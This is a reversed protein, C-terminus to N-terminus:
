RGAGSDLEEIEEVIVNRLLYGIGRRTELIDYGIKRKLKYIQNYIARNTAGEDSRHEWVLQYLRECSFISGPRRSLALMLDLQIPTLLVERGDVYIRLGERDVQLKVM